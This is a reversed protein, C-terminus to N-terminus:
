CCRDRDERCGAVCQGGMAVAWHRSRPPDRPAVRGQAGASGTNECPLRTHAAHSGVLSAFGLRRSIKPKAAKLINGATKIKPEEVEEEKLAMGGFAAASGRARRRKEEGRSAPWLTGALPHPLTSARAEGSLRGKPSGAPRRARCLGGSRGACTPRLLSSEGRKTEDGAPRVAKQTARTRPDTL